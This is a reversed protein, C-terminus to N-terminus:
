RKGIAKEALTKFRNSLSTAGSVVDVSAPNQSSVLASELITAAEVWTIGSKDAMATNYGENDRKKVEDEGAEDYTVAVIKGSKYTVAISGVYGRSDAEDSFTYTTDMHVYATKTNGSKAHALIAEALENFGETTHTAGAVTDVGAEQTDILAAELAAKAKAPTTGSRAEMREAYGADESKLNGSTSIYDFVATKVHGNKVTIELQPKWGRNDFGDYEAKYTGDVYEGKACGTFALLLMMAAIAVYVVRKM